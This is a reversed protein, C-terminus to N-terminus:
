AMNKSTSKLESEINLVNPFILNMGKRQLHLVEKACSVIKKSLNGEIQVPDNNSDSYIEDIYEQTVPIMNQILFARRRGLVNGFLITNCRGFKRIKSAHIKEYKEVRSSIPILWFINENAEDRFAFYCPRGHEVGDIMEKNKMINDNPFKLFYEKSIFYFRGAQM